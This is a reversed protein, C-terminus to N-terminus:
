AAKSAPQEFTSAGMNDIPASAIVANPISLVSGEATRLRTARFGVQEVIGEKGGVNIRDNQGQSNVELQYAGGNQMFAGTVTMTGQHVIVLTNGDPASRAGAEMGINGGAGPKYDIVVTRHLAPGLRDALWRARLDVVGGPGAPLVFHLLRGPAPVNDAASASAGMVAATLAAAMWRTKM